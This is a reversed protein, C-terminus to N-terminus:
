SSSSNKEEQKERIWERISTANYVTSLQLILQKKKKDRPSYQVGTQKLKQSSATKAADNAHTCCLTIYVLFM